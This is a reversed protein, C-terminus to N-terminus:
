GPAGCDYVKLVPPAEKAQVLISCIFLNEINAHKVLQDLKTEITKSREASNKAQTAAARASQGASSKGSKQLTSIGAVISSANILLVIILVVSLIQAAKALGAFIDGALDIRAKARPGFEPFTM